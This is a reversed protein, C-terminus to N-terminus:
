STPCGTLGTEDCGIEESCILVNDGCNYILIHAIQETYAKTEPFYGEIPVTSYYVYDYTAGDTSVSIVLSDEDTIELTNVISPMEYRLTKKSLAGAHYISEATSIIENGMLEVLTQAREDTVQKSQTFYLASVGIILLMGFAIVFLYELSYQGCKNFSRNAM